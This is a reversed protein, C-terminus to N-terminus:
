AGNLFPQRLLLRVMGLIVWARYRVALKDARQAIRRFEKLHGVTCEIVHRQRYRQRYRQRDLRRGRGPRQDDRRPLVATVRHRRCWRRVPAFSYAKDGALADPYRRPAGRRGPIAVSDLLEPVARLDSAQGAHVAVALGRGRGDTVLSLKTSFGGRSRGLAHDPPAGRPV